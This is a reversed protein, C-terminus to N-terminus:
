SPRATSCFSVGLCSSNGDTVSYQPKSSAAACSVLAVIYRWIAPVWLWKSGSSFCNSASANAFHPPLAAVRPLCGIGTRAMPLAAVSPGTATRAQPGRATGARLPHFFLRRMTFRRLGNTGGPASRGLSRDRDPVPPGRATGAHLPHCLLRRPTNQCRSCSASVRAEHWKVM